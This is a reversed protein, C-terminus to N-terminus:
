ENSGNLKVVEIKGHMNKIKFPETEGRQKDEKERFEVKKSNTRATILDGRKKLIEVFNKDTTINLRIVDEKNLGMKKRLAQVKRSIERAYGESELEPTMKTNFQASLENKDKTKKWTVSKVNLQNKIIDEYKKEVRFNESLSIKSLPWKLGIKEKDREFLGKEIIQFVKSFEEDIKLDIKKKDPKSFTTLHISEESVINKEKLEQWIKETLFPIIPALLKLVSLYIEEILKGTENSRERIIKIYARSFDMVVFDEILKLAEPFKFENYKKTVERLLQNYKSLIWKDEIKTKPKGNETQLVFNKLNSIIMFVKGIDKLESEDFSFDEGKSTKAFYYRLYDRGYKEFVENPQITNETSKSMKRKGIDLIMGHEVVNEFPIKEFKIWSLIFQSNWWGRVQDKGEINLDAPWYKNFHNKTGMKLAAWSSVGSDFWVDLVDPVRKMKGGCACSIEIKDIEPKHINIVKKGSEKELEHVSGIVKRKECKECVWIPLPTGWYRKRSVPWDSLGELWAKMRLKMWPPNWKVKENSKLINKQIQSIKLFWQPQSVMLLPTKCRWCLPYDHSYKMKYILFGEKELDEMIEEDVVRARKGSYKGAEKTLIGNIDVPSPMDLGAEKGVEYDEKGHGPACHVLGTGEDLTVYRPSLVVRYSNKINLKLNKSLPNLYEWNEMEIGKYIKKPTYGRELNGMISSVLEKAIIWKQGDSLEIEEYDFNPNVMVGTNGPLTWPTTTWIILFTNEKEKLPFKVFISNDEQKEYEVENFAVATECRPCIHVPYKGLYLLGKKEAVKFTDWITEIYENSLTLYPDEFNFWAGLNLFEENMIEIYKTAFEKCRDVFKKVGYKEIDKKSKTGIEKEIKFEIPVGHTDYGARDFVDFGQLRHSRMAIDKLIKNLATGMHISGTAYPPGDMLYFKKGKVNKKTSKEYIKKKKWFELIEEESKSIEM